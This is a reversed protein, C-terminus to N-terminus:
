YFLHIIAIQLSSYFQILERRVFEAERYKDINKIDPWQILGSENLIVMKNRPWVPMSREVFSEALVLMQVEKEELLRELGELSTCVIIECPFSGDMTLFASMQHAYDAESDCLILANQKM